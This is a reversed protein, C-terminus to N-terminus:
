KSKKAVNKLLYAFIYAQELRIKIKIGPIKPFM